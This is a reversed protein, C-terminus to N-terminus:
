PVLPQIVVQTVGAVVGLTAEFVNGQRGEDRLMASGVRDLGSIMAIMAPSTAVAFHNLPDDSGEVDSVDLVIVGPLHSVRETERLSGLRDTEGRLLGSIRLARDRGSVAIYIPVVRPALEGIQRRFLDVDLDPSILVVAQLRDLVRDSGRIATQRLAEMVVMAGMSHGVLVFDRATSQAVLDMVEELGDRGFLASERDFPYSLVHGASPWAYFLPVGPSRFDHAMQAHRYLGEAFNVNFGHVFVTVERAERPRRALHDNLVSLFSPADAIKEASVVLFDTEPDPAAPRPFTVTGPSRRPPVSVGFEAWRLTDSRGRAEIATGEGPGRSTASLVHVVTGPTEIDRLVLLEGRAACGGVLGALALGTLMRSWCRRRCAARDTACTTPM